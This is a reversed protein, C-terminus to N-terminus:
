KSIQEDRFKKCKGIRGIEILFIEYSLLMNTKFLYSIFNQFVTINCRQKKLNIWILYVPKKFLVSHKLVSFLNIVFRQNGNQPTLLQRSNTYHKPNPGLLYIAPFSQPNVAKEVQSVRGLGWGAVLMVINLSESICRCNVM